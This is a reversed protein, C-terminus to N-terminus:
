ECYGSHQTSTFGAEWSFVSLSLPRRPWHPFGVRLTVRLGAYSWTHSERSQRHVREAGQDPQQKTSLSSISHQHLAATAQATCMLEWRLTLPCDELVCLESPDKPWLISPLKQLLSSTLSFM